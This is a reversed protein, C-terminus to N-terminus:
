SLGVGELHAAVKAVAVVAVAEVGWLPIEEQVEGQVQCPAHVTQCVVEDWHGVEVATAVATM